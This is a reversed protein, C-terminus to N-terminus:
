VLFLALEMLILPRRSVKATAWWRGRRLKLVACDMQCEVNAPTDIGGLHSQSHPQLKLKANSARYRSENLLNYLLSHLASDGGGRAIDRRLEGLESISLQSKFTDLSTLRCSLTSRFDTCYCLKGKANPSVIGHLNLCYKLDWSWTFRYRPSSVLSHSHPAEARCEGRQIKQIAAFRNIYQDYLDARGYLSVTSHVNVFLQLDHSGTSYRWKGSSLSGLLSQPTSKSDNIM